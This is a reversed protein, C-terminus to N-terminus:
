KNLSKRGLHYPDARENRMVLRRKGLLRGSTDLLCVGTNDFRRGHHEPLHIFGGAGTKTDATGTQSQSLIEAVFGTLVHEEKDIINETEGLGAGFYGSQKATHRGGSDRICM